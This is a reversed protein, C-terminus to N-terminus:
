QNVETNFEITMIKRVNQRPYGYSTDQEKYYGIELYKIEEITLSELLKILEEKNM